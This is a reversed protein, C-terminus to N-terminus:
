FKVELQAVLEDNHIQRGGTTEDNFNYEIRITVDRVVGLLAALTYRRRSWTRSDTVVPRLNLDMGDVRGLVTISQARSWDPMPFRLSPQVYWGTRRLNGDSARVWEAFLDFPGVDSGPGGGVTWDVNLGVRHQADEDSFGYTPIARLFRIEGGSLEDRYGFGLVDLKGFAGLDAVAGLGLGIEKSNSTDANTREDRVTFFSDDKGIPGDDLKLGNYVGFRWYVPGHDGGFTLGLDDDRWFAGGALPFTDTKRDPKIFRQRLGAELWVPEVPFDKFTVWAQKVYVEPQNLSPRASGRADVQVDLLLDKRLTVHTWLRFRDLRFRGDPNDTQGALSTRESEVDVYELRLLGGIQLWDNALSLIGSAPGKEAAGEREQELRRLKAKVEELEAGQERVQRQLGELTLGNPPPPEAPVPVQPTPADPPPPPPAQAEVRSAALLGAFAAAAAARRPRVPFVAM